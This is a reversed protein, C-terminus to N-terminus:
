GCQHFYTSYLKDNLWYSWAEKALEAYLKVSYVYRVIENLDSSAPVVLPRKESILTITAKPNARKAELATSLGFVGGGVVVLSESSMTLYM